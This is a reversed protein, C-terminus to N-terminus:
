VGTCTRFCHLQRIRATVRLSYYVVSAGPGYVQLYYVATKHVQLHIVAQQRCSKQTTVCGAQGGGVPQKGAYLFMRLGYSTGYSLTYGHLAASVTLNGPNVAFTYWNANCMCNGTTQSLPASTSILRGKFPVSRAEASASLGFFLFLSLLCAFVPSRVWFRRTAEGYEVLESGKVM